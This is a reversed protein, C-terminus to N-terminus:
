EGLPVCIFAETEVQAAVGGVFVPPFVGLTSVSGHGGGVHSEHSTWPWMVCSQRSKGIGRVWMYVTTLVSSVGTKLTGAMGPTLFFDSM